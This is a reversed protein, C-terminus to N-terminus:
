KMILSLSLREVYDITTEVYGFKIDINRDKSTVNKGIIVFHPQHYNYRKMTPLYNEELFIGLTERLFILWKRKSSTENTKKTYLNCKKRWIVFCTQLVPAYEQLSLLTDQTQQWQGNGNRRPKYLVKFVYQITSPCRTFTSSFIWWCTKM